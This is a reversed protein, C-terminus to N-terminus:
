KGGDCQLVYVDWGGAQMTPNWHHVDRCVKYICHGDNWNFANGMKAKTATQCDELSNYDDGGGIHHCSTSEGQSRDRIKEFACTPASSLCIIEPYFTYFEQLNYM